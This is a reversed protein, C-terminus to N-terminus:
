ANDIEDPPSTGIAAAFTHFDSAIQEASEPGSIPDIMVIPFTPTIPRTDFAIRELGGNGGFFLFGPFENTLFDDCFGDVIDSIPDLVFWGPEIALPGEGGNSFRMLDILLQPLPFPSASILTALEEESAGPSRRWCDDDNSIEEFGLIMTKTGLTNHIAFRRTLM